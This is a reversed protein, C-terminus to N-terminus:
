ANRREELRQRRIALQAAKEADIERFIREVEFVAHFLAAWAVGVCGVFVIALWRM